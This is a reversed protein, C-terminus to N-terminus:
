WLAWPIPIVLICAVWAWFNQWQSPGGSWVGHEDIVTPVISESDNM